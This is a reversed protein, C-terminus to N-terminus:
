KLKGLKRIIDWSHTVLERRLNGPMDIMYKDLLMILKKQWPERHWYSDGRVEDPMVAHAVEHMFMSKMYLMNENYDIHILRMDDICESEGYIDWIDLEWDDLGEGDSVKEVFSLFEDPIKAKFKKQIDIKM